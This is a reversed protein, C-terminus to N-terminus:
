LGAAVGKWSTRWPTPRGHAAAAPLAIQEPPPLFTGGALMMGCSPSVYGEWGTARQPAQTVRECRAWSESGVDWAIVGYGEANALLQRQRDEDRTKFLVGLAVLAEAASMPHDFVEVALEARAAWSSHSIGERFRDPRFTYPRAGRSKKM